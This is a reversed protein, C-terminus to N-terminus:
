IVGIVISIMLFKNKFFGKHFFPSRFDRISLVYVLSDIGLLAFSEIGQEGVWEETHNVFKFRVQDADYMVPHIDDWYEEPIDLSEFIWNLVEQKDTEYDAHDPDLHCSRLIIADVIQKAESESILEPFVIDSMNVNSSARFTVTSVYLPIHLGPFSPPDFDCYPTSFDSFSSFGSLSPLSPLSPFDPFDSSIGFTHAGGYRQMVIEQDGLSEDDGEGEGSTGAVCMYRGSSQMQAELGDCCKKSSGAKYTQGEKVCSMRSVFEDGLRGISTSAWDSQWMVLGAVLLVLVVGGVLFTKNKAM